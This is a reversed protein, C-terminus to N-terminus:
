RMERVPTNEDTGDEPDLGYPDQKKRFSAPVSNSAPIRFPQESHRMRWFYRGVVKQLHPGWQPRAPGGRLQAAEKIQAFAQELVALASQRGYQAALQKHDM